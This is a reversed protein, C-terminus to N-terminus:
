LIECSRCCSPIECDAAIAPDAEAIAELLERMRKRKAKRLVIEKASELKWAGHRVLIEACEEHSFEVAWRLPSSQSFEQDVPGGAKLLAELMEAHGWTAAGAVAQKSDKASAGLRLLAMVGKHKGSWIASDIPLLGDQDGWSSRASNLDVGEAALQEIMEVDDHCAAAHVMQEKTLEKGDKDYRYKNALTGNDDGKVKSSFLGM